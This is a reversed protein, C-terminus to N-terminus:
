QWSKEGRIGYFLCKWHRWLSTLVVYGYTFKSIL